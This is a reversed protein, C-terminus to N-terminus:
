KYYPPAWGLYPGWEDMKRWKIVDVTGDPMNTVARGNGVYTAVHGSPHGPDWFMQAGILPEANRVHAVGARKARKWQELASAVRPGDPMYADDALRLCASWYGGTKNEALALLYDVAEAPSRTIGVPHLTARSPPLEPKDWWTGLASHEGTAASRDGALPVASAPAAMLTLSLIAVGLPFSRPKVYETLCM